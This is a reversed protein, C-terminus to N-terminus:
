ESQNRNLKVHAQCIMKVHDIIVVTYVPLLSIFLEKMNQPVKIVPIKIPYTQLSHVCIVFTTSLQSICQEQIQVYWDQRTQSASFRLEHCDRHNSNCNNVSCWEGSSKRHSKDRMNSTKLVALACSYWLLVYIASSILKVMCVPQTHYRLIPPNNTAWLFNLANHEINM